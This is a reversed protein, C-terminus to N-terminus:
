KLEATKALQVLETTWDGTAVLPQPKQQAPSPAIAATTTTAHPAITSPGAASAPMIMQGYDGSTAVSFQQYMAFSLFGSLQLHLARPDESSTNTHNPTCHGPVGHVALTNTITLFRLQQCMRGRNKTVIPSTPTHRSRLLTFATSCSANRNELMVILMRLGKLTFSRNLNLLM